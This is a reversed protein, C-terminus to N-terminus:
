CDLSLNHKCGVAVHDLGELSTSLDVGVEAVPPTDGVQNRKSLMKHGDIVLVAELDPLYFLTTLHLRERM